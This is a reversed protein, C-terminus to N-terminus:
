VDLSEKGDTTKQGSEVLAKEEAEQLAKLIFEKKEKSSVIFTVYQLPIYKFPPGEYLSGPLTVGTRISADSFAKSSLLAHDPGYNIGWSGEDVSGEAWDPNFLRTKYFVGRHRGAMFPIKFDMDIFDDMLIPSIAGSLMTSIIKRVGDKDFGHSPIKLEVLRSLKPVDEEFTDKKFSDPVRSKLNRIFSMRMAKTVKEWVQNQSRVESRHGLQTEIQVEILSIVKEPQLLFERADTTDLILDPSRAEYAGERAGAISQAHEYDPEREIVRMIRRSNNPVETRILLDLNQTDPPTINVSEYIFFDADSRGEMLREFTTSDLIQFTKQDMEAVDYGLNELASKLYGRITSKATGPRGLIMIVVPKSKGREESKRQYASAVLNGLEELDKVLTDSSEAQVISRVESRVAEALKPKEKAIFSILYPVFQERTTREFVKAAVAAQTIQKPLEGEHYGVSMLQKYYQQHKKSIKQIKPSIIQYSINKERLIEQINNKHFGGFVLVAQDEDEAKLFDDLQKEISHDRKHATEYFQIASKITQEWQRSLVLSEHTNQVIFKALGRTNFKQLTEKVAKYEAPTVRIDSLRSLLALSKHYGFTKQDRESDLYEKAFDNELQNIEEFLVKSDIKNVKGKLDKDRSKEVLLLLGVGPYQSQFAEKTIKKLYLKKTRKLYDLLSLKETDFRKKYKMWTKLAKPFHKNALRNIETQLDKLDEDIAEKHQASKKYWEINELHLKISDAGILKFDEKRNIHAYEAGGIRLKDMLFYAVKEKVEPDKIFGFYEDTPVSGEYGEEFVTKVGERAVLHNIIKAINEQAELSDHADQIYYITKNPVPKLGTGMPIYSEEVRGLDEPILLAQTPAATPGASVPQAWGTSTVSFAILTLFATIRLFSSHGTGPKVKNKIETKDWM